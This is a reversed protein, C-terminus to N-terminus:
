QSLSAQSKLHYDGPIWVASPERPDVPVSPHSPDAWYGALVFVPDVDLNGTGPWGGEIDSHSVVSLSSDDCLMQRPVNGWVISNVVVPNSGICYIAAGEEGAVNETITCQVLTPASRELYIAGSRGLRSRNGAVVCNSILPSCSRCAIASAYYGSGGTIMFGKLVSQPGAGACELALNPDRTDPCSGAISVVTGLGAGDIVPCTPPEAADPDIGTVTIGKNVMRIQEWYTGERVIVVCGEGAVEIAEQISDFPHEASGNEWFDSVTNDGARPDAPRNADVYLVKLRSTFNARVERDGDMTLSETATTSSLSGSWGAWTYGPGAVAYLSVVTGYGYTFTGLGPQWSVGGKTSTVKLTVQDAAFNAALTCDGDMRVTTSASTPSAVKGATVASGTWNVFHYHQDATAAVAVWSGSDYSFRGEGPITASGGAGSSTTLVVQGVAFSAQLTYNGDMTVTTSASTANAVKGATV